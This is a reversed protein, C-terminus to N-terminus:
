RRQPDDQGGPQIWGGAPGRWQGRADRAGPADAGVRRPGSTIRGARCGVLGNLAEYGVGKRLLQVTAKGASAHWTRQRFKPMVLAPARALRSIRVDRMPQEPYTPENAGERHRRTLSSESIDSVGWNSTHPHHMAADRRLTM